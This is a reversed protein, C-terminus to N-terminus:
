VEISHGYAIRKHNARSENMLKYTASQPTTGNMIEERLSAVYEHLNYADKHDKKTFGQYERAGKEEYIPKGSSTHGIIHGGKSGEGQFGKEIQHGQYSDLSISLNKSM